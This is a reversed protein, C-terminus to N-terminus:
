PEVVVEDGKRVEGPALVWAYVRSRGPSREHHLRSFDGDSFWGANKACPIAYSSIELLAGGVRLTTGPVLEAWDLGAVTLNEGASGHDIPHGEARLSDIVEASWLCVAQFPRGHHRRDAQRDGGLGQWGIDARPVARKPVGGDSLHVWEVTGVEPAREGALRRRARGVLHLHHRQQHLAARTIPEGPSTAGGESWRVLPDWADDPLGRTYLDWLVGLATTTTAVDEDTWDDESFGCDVCRESSV